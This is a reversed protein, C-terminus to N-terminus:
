WHTHKATRKATFCNTADSNYWIPFPSDFDTSKVPTRPLLVKNNNPQAINHQPGNLSFHNNDWVAPLCGQIKSQFRTNEVQIKSQFRMIMCRNRPSMMKCILTKLKSLQSFAFLPSASADVTFNKWKQFSKTENNILAKRDSTEDLKWYTIEMGWLCLKSIQGTTTTTTTRNNHPIRRDPSTQKLHPMRWRQSPSLGINQIGAINGHAFLRLVYSDNLSGDSHDNEMQGRCYIHSHRVVDWVVNYCFLFSWLQHRHLTRRQYYQINVM